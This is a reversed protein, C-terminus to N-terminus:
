CTHIKLNTCKKVQSITAKELTRVTVVTYVKDMWGDMWGDM